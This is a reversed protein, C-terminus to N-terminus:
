ESFAFGQERFLRFADACAGADYRVGAGDEIEALAKELPLAARYPRHSIMAEVVDAVALLRAGPLIQDGSLGRPYGSGDLREHHQLVIEAVPGGFDIPALIEYAAASPGQHARVRDGDTACAQLPDRGPRRDQRRRARAGRHAAARRGGRELGSTRRDPWALEAVRREHSSTYPDRMAVTAGLAVVTDALAHRLREERERLAADARVRETVDLSAGIVAELRGQRRVAARRLDDPPAGRADEPHVIRHDVRYLEGAAARALAAQMAERDDPHCTALIEEEAFREGHLGHLRQWEESVRTAGSAVDWEWSGLHALSEGNSLVAASHQLARLAEKQASVDQVFGFLHADGSAGDRSESLYLRGDFLSGDKRRYRNEYIRWDGGSEQVDRVIGARQSPDEYTAAAIGTRNAVELMEEPSDYGFITAFAPNVFVFHGEPTSRFIGVPTQDFLSRYRVESERLAAEARKRESIDTVLALFYEVDGADKRVARVGMDVYVARGDKRIFRKELRYADIEGAMVRDFKAVDAALDDPHTIESWTKDSLEERAYGVLDLFAQNVDIVGKEPSTVAVGVLSQEFYGRFRSESALLEAQARRVATVDSGRVVIGIVEGSSDAQPAFLVDYFRQRAGEGLHTSSTSRRM